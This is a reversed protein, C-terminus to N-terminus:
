RRHKKYILDFTITCNFNGKKNKWLDIIYAADVDAGRDLLRAIPKNDKESIYGICGYKTMVQIANPHKETPARKLEIDESEDCKELISQRSVGDDNEYIVGVVELEFTKYDEDDEENKYSSSKHVNQNEFQQKKLEKQKEKKIEMKVGIYLLYIVLLVM